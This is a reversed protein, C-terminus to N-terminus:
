QGHSELDHPPPPLLRHHQARRRGELGRRGPRVLDRGDHCAASWPALALRDVYPFPDVQGATRDRSTSRESGDRSFGSQEFGSSALPIDIVVWACSGRISASCCRWMYRWSRFLTTCPYLTSRPPRRIM